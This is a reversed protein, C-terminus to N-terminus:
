DCAEGQLTCRGSRDYIAYAGIRVCRAGDIRPPASQWGEGFGPQNSQPRAALVLADWSASAAAREDQLMFYQSAEVSGAIRHADYNYAVRQPACSALQEAARRYRDELREMALCGIVGMATAGAIVWGRSRAPLWRSWVRGTSVLLAAHAPLVYRQGGVLTELM